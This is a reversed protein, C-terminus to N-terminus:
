NFGTAKCVVSLEATVPPPCHCPVSLSIFAYMFLLCVFFTNAQMCFTTEYISHIEITVMVM